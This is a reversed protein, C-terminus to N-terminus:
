RKDKKLELGRRRVARNVEYLSTKGFGDLGSLDKASKGILQGLNEINNAKLRLSARPSLNLEEIPTLLKKTKKVLKGYDIPKEEGKVKRLRQNDAELTKVKEEAIAIAEEMSKKDLLIQNITALGDNIQRDAKESLQRIREPSKLGFQKAIEKLKKGELIVSRLAKDERKGILGHSLMIDLLLLLKQKLYNVKGEKTRFDIGYITEM